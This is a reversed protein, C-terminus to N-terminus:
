LPGFWVLFPFLGKAKLDSSFNQFIFQFPFSALSALRLRAWLLRVIKTYSCTEFPVLETFHSPSPLDSHAVELPFLFLWPSARPTYILSRMLPPFTDHSRFLPFVSWRAETCAVPTRPSSPPFMPLSYLVYEPDMGM